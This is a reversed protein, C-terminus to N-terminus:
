VRFSSLKKQDCSQLFTGILCYPTLDSIKIEEYKFYKSELGCGCIFESSAACSQLLQGECCKEM